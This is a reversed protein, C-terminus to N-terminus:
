RDIPVSTGPMSDSTVIRSRRSPPRVCTLAHRDVSEIGDGARRSAASTATFVVATAGRCAATLSAPDKLDGHVVEAGMGSLASERPSGPRVLGRVPQGRERLRRCIEGGLRGTAGVVLNM